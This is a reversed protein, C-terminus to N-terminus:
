VHRNFNGRSIPRLSEMSSRVVEEAEYNRNSLEILRAIENYDGYQMLFDKIRKLDRGKLNTRHILKVLYATLFM